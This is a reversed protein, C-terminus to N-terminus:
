KNLTLSLFVLFLYSIHEFNVIFVGYRVSTTRTNKNNVKLINWVKELTEITSKSCTLTLQIIDKQTGNKWKMTQLLLPINELHCRNRSFRSKLSLHLPKLHIEKEKKSKVASMSFIVYGEIVYGEILANWAM